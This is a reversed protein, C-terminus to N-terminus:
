KSTERKIIRHPLVVKIEDIEEKSMLKTLLRMSVAGIDYVPVDISTLKPRALLAYKTNQFGAIGLDEPVKKNNNIALNMFSVAISDRVAIAGDVVKDEFFTEFHAENVNTDGSTRFVKPEMNAELMAKKYGAEKLDNVSYSRVTSLLYIDKRDADIMLKTLEYGAKEYDISVTPVEENNSVVNAFVIPTRNNKFVKQVVEVKDDPLEDNLYLVGDLQEALINQLADVIDAEERLTFLKISYKYTLAIDSIGALMEAISARTMDSVIVGVTTTKRSALGRAIVNPRYGLEEIVKLVRERTEKKVKEPNNLVRSVTALSVGAAGAVDYITANNM